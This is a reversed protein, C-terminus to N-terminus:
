GHPRAEPADCQQRACGRSRKLARAAARQVLWGLPRDLGARSLWGRNRAVHPYLWDWAARLRPHAMVAAVSHLGVAGYAAVFVDVGSLWRGHADRAHIIDMAQAPTVGAAVLLPDDFGPPSCDVLQLRGLVDHDALAHLERRCLACGKDYWIRLPWVVSM